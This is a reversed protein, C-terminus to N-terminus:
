WGAGNPRSAFDLKPKFRWASRPAIADPGYLQRCIAQMLPDSLKVDVTQWVGASELLQKRQQQYQDDAQAFLRGYREAVDRLSKPSEGVFLKSVLPHIPNKRDKNAAFRAALKPAEVAFDREKLAAFALWPAFIPHHRKSATRALYNSWARAINPSLERQRFFNSQSVGGTGRAADHIALLYKDLEHWAESLVRNWQTDEFEDAVRQAEGVKSLFDQYEANQEVPEVIPGERPETCSAFIGHWSYYDETPIPDFKHDHCRGCAVTLGLLGRSVVDIRDDILDDQNNTFRKGVTIFGLAALASPDKGLPLQDAALQELIFRDFPKDDNFAQIVYDRYTYAYVLRNEIRGGLSNEGTTDAYRAIDLWYRGWREGYHPSALLRDVVKAYARPSADELFAAVEESTPPLGILDFTARRILTRKDAPASPHMEKAELKSLVFADM